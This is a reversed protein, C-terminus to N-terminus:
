VLDLTYPADGQVMRWIQGEDTDSSIEGEGIGYEELEKRVSDQRTFMVSELQQWAADVSAQTEALDLDIHQVQTEASDAHQLSPTHCTQPAGLTLSSTDEGSPPSHSHRPGAGTTDSLTLSAGPFKRPKPVPAQIASNTEAM